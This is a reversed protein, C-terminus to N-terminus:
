SARRACADDEVEVLRRNGKLGAGTPCMCVHRRRPAGPSRCMPCRVGSMPCLALSLKAEASLPM